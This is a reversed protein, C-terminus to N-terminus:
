PQNEYLCANHARSNDFCIGMRRQQQHYRSGGIEKDWHHPRLQTQQRQRYAFNWPWRWYQVQCQNFNSTICSPMRLLLIAIGCKWKSESQSGISVWLTHVSNSDKQTWFAWVNLWRWWATCLYIYLPCGSQKPFSNALSNSQKLIALSLLRSPIWTPLESSVLEQGPGTSIYTNFIPLFAM